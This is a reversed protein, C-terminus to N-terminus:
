VINFANVTLTYNDRLCHFLSFLKKQLFMPNEPVYVDLHLFFFVCKFAFM